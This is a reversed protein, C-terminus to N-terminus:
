GGREFDTRIRALLDGYVADKIQQLQQETLTAAAPSPMPRDTAATRVPAAPPAVAVQATSGAPSALPAAAPPAPAPPAGPSAALHHVVRAENRLAAAEQAAGPQETALRAQAAHTLEHGLLGLGTPSDPDFKGARFLIKDGISVADARYHRAVTDAAQNVYLKVAPIQMALVGALVRQAGGDLRAPPSHEVTALAPAVPDSPPVVPPPPVPTTASPRSPRPPPAVVAQLAPQGRPAALTRPPAPTAALRPPRSQGVTPKPETLTVFGEAKGGPDQMPRPLDSGPPATLAAVQLQTRPLTYRQQRSAAFASQRQGSARRTLTTLVRDRWQEGITVILQQRAVPQESVPTLAPAATQEDRSGM